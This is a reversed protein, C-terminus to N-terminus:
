EFRNYFIKETNWKDKPEPDEAPYGITIICLPHLNEPINLIQRAIDSRHDDESTVTLASWVAGLGLSHAALLINETAASCDQIWFDRAAGELTNNFDGCPIIGLTANNALRSAPLSDGLQKILAPDDVVIFAWPQKNVASPAAFGARLLQEVMEAPVTDGTFHRVSKRTLINDMVAAHNNSEKNEMNDQKNCCGILTLLAATFVLVKKM